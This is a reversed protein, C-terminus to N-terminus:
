KEVGMLKNWRFIVIRKNWLRKSFEELNIIKDRLFPSKLSKVRPM